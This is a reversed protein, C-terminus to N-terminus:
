RWISFSWLSGVPIFGLHIGWHGGKRLTLTARKPNTLGSYSINIINAFPVHEVHGENVVILENGNDWVEDMLCFLLAKFLLYGFAMLVLPLVVVILAQHGAKLGLILFMGLLCFWLLPFLHKYFYTAGSSIRKAGPPMMLTM